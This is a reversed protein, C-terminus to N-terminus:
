AVALAVPTEPDIGKNALIMSNIANMIANIQGETFGQEALQKRCRVNTAYVLDTRISATM